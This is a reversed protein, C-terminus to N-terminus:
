IEKRCLTTVPDPGVVWIGLGLAQDVAQFFFVESHIMIIHLPDGGPVFRYKLSQWTGICSGFSSATTNM